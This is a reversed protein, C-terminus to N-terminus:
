LFFLLAVIGVLLLVGGIVTPIFINLFYIKDDRYLKCSEISLYYGGCVVMMIFSIIALIM